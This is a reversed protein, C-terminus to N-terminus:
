QLVMGDYEIELQDGDARDFVKYGRKISVWKGAQASGPRGRKAIKVGDFIIFVNPGTFVMEVKVQDNHFKMTDGGARSDQLAM